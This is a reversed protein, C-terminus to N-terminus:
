GAEDVYIHECWIAVMGIAIITARATYRVQQLLAIQPLDLDFESADELLKVIEESSPEDKSLSEESIRIFAEVQKTYDAVQIM